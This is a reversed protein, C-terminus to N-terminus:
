ASLEAALKSFADAVVRVMAGSERPSMHGREITNAIAHMNFALKAVEVILNHQLATINEVTAM